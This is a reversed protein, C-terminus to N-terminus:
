MQIRDADQQNLLSGIPRRSNGTDACCNGIIRLTHMVLAQRLGDNNVLGLFFDLM